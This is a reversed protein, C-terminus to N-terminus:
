KAHKEKWAPYEKALLKAPWNGYWATGTRREREIEALSYKKIGDRGAFIPRNTEIEYHRAWILPATPDEVVVVDFDAAHRLFEERPAAVRSVRIGEIQVMRLWAMADAMAM